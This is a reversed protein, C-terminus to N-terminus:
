SASRHKPADDSHAWDLIATINTAVQQHAADEIERARRDFAEARKRLRSWGALDGAVLLDVSETWLIRARARLLQAHPPHLLDRVEALM